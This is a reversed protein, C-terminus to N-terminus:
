LFRVGERFVGFGTELAVYDRAPTSIREAGDAIMIVGGGASTCVRRAVTGMQLIICPGTEAPGLQDDPAM